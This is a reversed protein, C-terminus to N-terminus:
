DIPKAAVIPLIVVSPHQADHYITNRAVTWPAAENNLMFKNHNPLWRPFSSSSVTLRLRHGKLFVNGLPYIPITYKYVRGPVIRTPKEL